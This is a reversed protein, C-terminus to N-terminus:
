QQDQFRVYNKNLFDIFNEKLTLLKFFQKWSEFVGIYQMGFGNFEDYRGKIKLYYYWVIFIVIWIIILLIDM